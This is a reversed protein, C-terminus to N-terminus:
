LVGRDAMPCRMSAGFFLGVWETCLHAVM